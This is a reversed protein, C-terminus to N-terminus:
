QSHLVRRLVQPFDTIIGSVGMQILRRMGKEDNVTWVYIDFGASRLAQVTKGRVSSKRPNYAQAGVETLYRLPKRIAYVSLVATALRPNLRRVQRLVDHDFSSVIVREQLNMAEILAVSKEVMLAGKDKNSLRKLEVNVRWDNDLTFQLAERLAPAREGVYSQQAEAPVAGARIQGFPDKENFWSGCDLTQIEALTFDSIRWPHRDPFRLPADSTRTLTDDHMVILEDDATLQVDLEWMDAGAQLAKRAAALTNEPALSRAGRHAINLTNNM